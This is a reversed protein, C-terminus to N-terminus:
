KELQQNLTENVWRNLWIEVSSGDRKAKRMVKELVVSSLSVSYQGIFSAPNKESSEKNIIEYDNVCKIFNQHIEKATDGDFELLDAANVVEGVMRQAREDFDVKGIFGKHLLM